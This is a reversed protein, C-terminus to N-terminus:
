GATIWSPSVLIDRLIIRVSSSKTKLLPDRPSNTTDSVFKVHFQGRRNLGIYSWMLPEDANKGLFSNGICTM